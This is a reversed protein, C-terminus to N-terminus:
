PGSGSRLVLNPRVGCPNAINIGDPRMTGLKTIWSQETFDLSRPSVDKECISFKYMSCFDRETNKGHISVMHYVLAKEDSELDHHEVISGCEGEAGNSRSCFSRHGNIRARLEQTTQGVYQLSCETCQAAYVVNRSKCCGGDTKFRRGNTHSTIASVGVMMSCSKCPAGVRSVGVPTCRSTVGTNGVKGALAFKKRGLVINGISRDRRNVVGIPKPVDKWAPSHQLVENTDRVIKAIAASGAGFTAVWAVDFPPESSKPRQVLTRRRKVVDDFVGNLLKEPYGSKKFADKLEAFRLKLTDNDNIIRRYRLAQSYVVSNFVHRPHCSSFHLYMRADTEKINIDTILGANAEFMFRVDLFTTFEGPDSIDWAKNRDKKLSLGYKDELQQNIADAWRTFTRSSGNWMGGIDDVFRRLSILEPPRVEASYIVKRLVYYVTINALMVSLSNGTPIGNLARYWNDGFKAVSSSLSLNIM